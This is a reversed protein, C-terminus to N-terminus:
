FTVAGGLSSGISRVTSGVSSGVGSAGSVISDTSFVIENNRKLDLTYQAIDLGALFGSGTFPGAQYVSYVKDPSYAFNAARTVGILGGFGDPGALKLTSNDGDVMFLGDLLCSRSLKGDMYIDLTRGTLVATICVWRQLDISEIDCKKFDGGADSYPSAGSVIANYDSTYSLRGNNSNGTDQSVRIGLKNTYQGLYMVLTMFGSSEPAGGSLILFPKNAGKNLNWNTVYIWTSISYEGGSYIQPVAFLVQDKSKGPLGDRASGYILADRVDPNNATGNVWSWVYKLVVILILIVFAFLALTVLDM